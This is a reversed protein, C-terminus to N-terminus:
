REVGKAKAIAVDLAKAWNRVVAQLDYVSTIRSVIPHRMEEAIARVADWRDKESM